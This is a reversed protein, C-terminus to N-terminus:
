KKTKDNRLEKYISSVDRELTALRKIYKEREYENEIKENIFKKLLFFEKKELTKQERRIVYIQHFILASILWFAVHFLIM